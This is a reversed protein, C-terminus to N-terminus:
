DRVVIFLFIKATSLSLQPEFSPIKIRPLCTPLSGVMSVIMLNVNGIRLCSWLNKLWDREEGRLEPYSCQFCGFKMDLSEEIVPQSTCHLYITCRHCDRTRFQQCAVMLVCDSCDRIFVSCHHIFYHFCTKFHLKPENGEKVLVLLSKVIKATM